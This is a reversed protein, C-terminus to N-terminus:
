SLIDNDARPSNIHATIIKNPEKKKLNACANIMEDFETNDALLFQM